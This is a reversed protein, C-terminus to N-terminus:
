SLLSLAGTALLRTLFLCLWLILLRLLVKKLLWLSGVKLESLVTGIAIMLASEVLRRTNQNKMCNEELFILDDRISSGAFFCRFIEAKTFAGEAPIIRILYYPNPSKGMEAGYRM